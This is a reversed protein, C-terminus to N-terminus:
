STQETWTLEERTIVISDDVNTYHVPYQWDDVVNCIDGYSPWEENRHKGGPPNIFLRADDILVVDRDRLGGLIRLEDLLPCEVALRPTGCGSWHADLWFLTPAALRPLILPLVHPSSGFVIEVNSCHATARKAHCFYHPSLEISWLREFKASCFLPTQGTWSGTEVLMRLGYTERLQDVLPEPFTLPKSTSV